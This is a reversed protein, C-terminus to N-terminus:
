VMEDSPTLFICEEPISELNFILTNDRIPTRPRSPIPTSLPGGLPPMPYPVSPRPTPPHPVSPRPTPPPCPVSPRPTPPPCPVSPRPPPPHTSASRNIYKSEETNFQKLKELYLIMDMAEEQAHTLWDLYSLDDRDLTKGYKVKGVDGRSKMKSIVAYLVSDTNESTIELRSM